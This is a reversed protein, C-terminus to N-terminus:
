FITYIFPSLASSQTLFLLMGLLLMMIIIPALWWKKRESLLAWIESLLSLSNKMHARWVQRRDLSGSGSRFCDPVDPEALYSSLMIPFSARNVANM